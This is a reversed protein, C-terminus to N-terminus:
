KVTVIGKQDPKLDNHYTYIGAKNFITSVSSDNAFSGLNLFLWKTNYPYPDSNVTADTGSTNLFVIRTGTEIKLNSPTFGNGTLTVIAVAAAKPTPTAVATPNNGLRNLNVKTSGVFIVGLILCLVIITLFGFIFRKKM